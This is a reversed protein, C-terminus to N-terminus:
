SGAGERPNRKFINIEGVSTKRKFFQINVQDVEWDTNPNDKVLDILMMANRKQGSLPVEVHGNTDNLINNENHIDIKGGKIPDGLVNRLESNQRAIEIAQLMVKSKYFRNRESHRVLYIGTGGVVTLGGLILNLTKWPVNGLKTLFAKM